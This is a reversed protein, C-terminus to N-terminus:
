TVHITTSPIDLHLELYTLTALVVRLIRDVYSHHATHWWRDTFLVAINGSDLVSTSENLQHIMLSDSTKLRLLNYWDSMKRPSLLVYFRCMELSATAPKFPSDSPM